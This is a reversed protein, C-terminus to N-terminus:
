KLENLFASTHFDIFKNAAMYIGDQFKKPDVPIVKTAKSTTNRVSFYTGYMTSVGQSVGGAAFSQVKEDAVVGQIYLPKGLTGVYSTTSALGMKGHYFSVESNVMDVTNQGKLKIIAKSDDTMTIADNAALRLNTKIKINVGNGQFASKDEVFLVTIDVKSIIADDLEKSLKPFLFQTNGLFGGSKEKGSKSVKKVFYSYNTPATAMTGPLQALSVKGGSVMEYDSYTETKAATEASVIELGAAKIKALYDAFLKDTIMQVDAESLGELGVSAEAKADGRMGGGFTSGGQKFKQKENYIQYNVSFDSIFIKTAKRAKNIGYSNDKPKFDGLTQANSFTALATFAAALLTTKLHKM